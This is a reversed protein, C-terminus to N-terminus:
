PQTEILSEDHIRVSYRRKGFDDDTAVSTTTRIAFCLWAFPRWTVHIQGGICCVSGDTPWSVFSRRCVIRRGQM